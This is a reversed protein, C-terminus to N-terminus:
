FLEVGALLELAAEILAGATKVVVECILDGGFEFVVEAIQAAGRDDSSSEQQQM